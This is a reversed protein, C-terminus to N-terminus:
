SPAQTAQSWVVQWRDGRWEYFDTHWYRDPGIRRGDVLIQITSRYRLCGCDGLVHADIDEADWTVYNVRGAAIGGSTSRNRSRTM